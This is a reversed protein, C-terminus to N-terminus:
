IDTPVDADETEAYAERILNSFFEEPKELAEKTIVFTSEGIKDRILKFGYEFDNTLEKYFDGLASQSCFMKMIIMDIADEDLSIKVDHTKQFYAEVKKIQDHYTAMKDLITGVEMDEV